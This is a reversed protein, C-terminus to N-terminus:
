ITYNGVPIRKGFESIRIDTQPFGSKNVASMLQSFAEKDNKMLYEIADELTLESVDPVVLTIPEMTTGDSANVNITVTCKSM